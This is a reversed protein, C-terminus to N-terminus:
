ATMTIQYDQAIMYVQNDEDFGVFEQSDFRILQVNHATAGITITGTYRDLTTRADDAATMAADIDSCFISLQVLYKDYDNFSTKSVIADTSVLSYTMNVTGDAVNVAQPVVIPFINYDDKLLNYIVVDARM